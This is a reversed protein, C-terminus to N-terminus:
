GSKQMAGSNSTSTTSVVKSNGIGKRRKNLNKRKKPAKKSAIKGPHEDPIAEKINGNRNGNTNSNESVNKDVNMNGNAQKKTPKTVTDENTVKVPAGNGGQKKVQDGESVTAVDRSEKSASQREVDQVGVSLKHNAKTKDTMKAEGEDSTGNIDKADIPLLDGDQTEATFDSNNNAVLILDHNDVKGLARQVVNYIVDTLYASAGILTRDIDKLSKRHKEISNRCKRAALSLQKAVQLYKIADRQLAEKRVMDKCDLAATLDRVFRDQAIAIKSEYDQERDLARVMLTTFEDEKSKAENECDRRDSRALELTKYLTDAISPDLHHLQALADHDLLELVDEPTNNMKIISRPGDQAESSMENKATTTTIHGM